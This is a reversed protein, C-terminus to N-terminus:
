CGSFAEKGGNEKVKFQCTLGLKWYQSTLELQPQNHRLTKTNGQCEILSEKHSGSQVIPGWM